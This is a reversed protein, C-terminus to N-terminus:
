YAKSVVLTGSRLPPPRVAIQTETTDPIIGLGSGAVQLPTKGAGNKADLLGDGGGEGDPAYEEIISAAVTHWFAYAYHLATNGCIDVARTDAGKALLKRLLFLTGYRAALMIPTVGDVDAGDVDCGAKLLWEVM